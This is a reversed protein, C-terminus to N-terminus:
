VYLSIGDAPQERVPAAAKANEALMDALVQEAQASQRILAVSLENGMAAQYNQLIVSLEM